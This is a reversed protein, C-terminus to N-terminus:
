EAVEAMRYALTCRCNPEGPETRGNDFTHELPYWVGDDLADHEERVREDRSSIWAKEVRRGTQGEIEQMSRRQAGNTARTTETRAVLLARKRDFADLERLRLELKRMSEDAELSAQVAGAVAKGTTEGMKAVLFATEEAAYRLIGPQVLDFSLGIRATARRAANIATSQVLPQLQAIAAERGAKTLYEGIEGLFAALTTADMRGGSERVYRRFLRAVDASQKALLAAVTPEWVRASAKTAVDFEAWLLDMGPM